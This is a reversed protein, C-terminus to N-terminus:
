NSANTGDRIESGSELTCGLWVNDRLSAILDTVFNEAGGPTNVTSRIGGSLDAWYEDYEFSYNVISEGDPSIQDPRMELLTSRNEGSIHQLVDSYSVPVPERRGNANCTHRIAALHAHKEGIRNTVVIQYVHGTEQVAFYNGKRHVVCLPYTADNWAVANGSADWRTAGRHFKRKEAHFCDEGFSALALNHQDEDMYFVSCITIEVNSAVDVKHYLRHQDSLIVVMRRKGETEMQVIAEENHGAWKHAAEIYLNKSMSTTFRGAYCLGPQGALWSALLAGKNERWGPQRLAAAKNFVLMKVIQMRTMEMEIRASRMNVAQLLLEGGNAARLFRRISEEFPIHREMRNMLAAEIMFYVKSRDEEEWAPAQALDELVEFRLDAVNQIQGKATLLAYWFKYLGVEMSFAMVAKYFVLYDNKIQGAASMTQELVAKAGEAVSCLESWDVNAERPLCPLRRKRKIRTSERHNLGVELLDSLLRDFHKITLAVGAMDQLSLLLDDRLMGCTAEAMPWLRLVGSLDRYPRDTAHTVTVGELGRLETEGSRLRAFCQIISDHAQNRTSPYVSFRSGRIRPVLHWVASGPLMYPVVGAYSNWQGDPSPYRMGDHWIDELGRSRPDRLFAPRSVRAAEDKSLRVSRRGDKWVVQKEASKDHVYSLIARRSSLSQVSQTSWVEKPGDRPSTIDLDGNTAYELASMTSSWKLHQVEMFFPPRRRLGTDKRWFNGLPTARNDTFWDVSGIKLIQDRTLGNNWAGVSALASIVLTPIVNIDEPIESIDDQIIELCRNTVTELSESKAPSHFKFAQFTKRIYATDM